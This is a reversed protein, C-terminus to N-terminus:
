RSGGSPVNTAVSLRDPQRTLQYALRATGDRVDIRYVGAVSGGPEALALLTDPGTWGLLEFTADSTADLGDLRRRTTVEGSGADVVALEGVDDPYSITAFVSGDPSILTEGLGSSVNARIELPLEGSAQGSWDLRLTRDASLGGMVRPLLPFWGVAQEPLGALCCPFPLSSTRMTTTDVLIARRGTEGSDVQLPLQFDIGVMRSDPSWHISTKYQHIVDAPFELPRDEEGSALDRVVLYGSGNRRHESLYAIRKGNPAVSVVGSDLGNGAAEAVNWQRGDSTLLRWPNRCPHPRACTVAYALVAPQDIRAPLAPQDETRIDVQPVGTVPKVTPTPTPRVPEVGRNSLQGPVLVAAAALVAAVLPGAIMARRRRRIAGSVARDALDDIPAARDAVSDLLDKLDTM